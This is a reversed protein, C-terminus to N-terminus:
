ELNLKKELVKTTVFYCVVTFILSFVFSFILVMNLSDINPLEKNFENLLDPSFLMMGGLMLSSIVQSITYIVLGYVISYIVKHSNQTQGLAVAAYVMYIQNIYGIIFNLIICIIFTVGLVDKIEVIVNLVDKIFGPKYVLIMVSCISVITSIILSVIAVIGESIIMKSVETPLTHRLYAEDKVHNRYFYTINYAISIFPIAVILIVVGVLLFGLPVRLFSAYDVIWSFLRALISLIILIGYIPFLKKNIMKFDYKLLKGLM